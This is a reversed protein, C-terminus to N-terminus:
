DDKKKKRERLWYLVAGILLLLLGLSLIVAAARFLLSAFGSGPRATEEGSEEGVATGKKEKKEDWDNEGASRYVVQEDWLRRKGTALANRCLIGAENRYSEGNWEVQEVVYDSPDAGIASLLLEGRDEFFPTEGGAALKEGELLYFDAGYDEFIVTFAFDAEWRERSRQREKLEYPGGNEDEDLVEPIRTIGEVDRYIVTKENEAPEEREQRIEPVSIGHGEPQHWAGQADAAGTLAACIGFIWLWRKM